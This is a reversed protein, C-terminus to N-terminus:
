VPATWVPSASYLLAYPLFAPAQSDKTPALTDKSILFFAGSFSDPLDLLPILAYSAPLPSVFLRTYAPIHPHFRYRCRRLFPFPCVKLAKQGPAPLFLSNEPPLVPLRVPLFCSGCICPFATEILFTINYLMCLAKRKHYNKKALVSLFPFLTNCNLFNYPINYFVFPFDKKYTNHVFINWFNKQLM